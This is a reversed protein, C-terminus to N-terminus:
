AAFEPKNMDLIREAVEIADLAKDLFKSTRENM